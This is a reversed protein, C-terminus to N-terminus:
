IGGSCSTCVVLGVYGGPIHIDPCVLPTLIRTFFLDPEIVDAIPDRRYARAYLVAERVHDVMM